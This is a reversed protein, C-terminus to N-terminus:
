AKNVKFFNGHCLFYNIEDLELWAKLIDFTLIVSVIVPSM